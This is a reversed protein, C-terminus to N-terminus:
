SGVGRLSGGVRPGLWYALGLLLLTLEGVESYEFWEERPAVGKKGVGWGCYGGEENELRASVLM